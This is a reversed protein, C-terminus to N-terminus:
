PLAREAAEFMIDVPAKQGTWLEQSLAGQHILMGLGSLTKAGVSQANQLLLTQRPNYVIDYVTHRALLDQAGLPSQDVNPSMGLPTTNIILDISPAWNGFQELAVFQVPTTYDSLSEILAQAKSADRGCILIQKPNRSHALAHAISKASGGYGLLAITSGNIQIGESEMHALAGLGDTTTGCLQGDQFYLTNVSGSRQSLESVQDLHEFVAEKHPITVNAGCLGMARMGMLAAGLQEPACPLAIYAFNVGLHEFAANHMQPSVSHSVPWGLIGVVQTKSNLSVTPM